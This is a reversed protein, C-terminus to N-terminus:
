TAYGAQRLVTALTPLAAPLRFGSNDRIGHQYPYLGTLINAHSPLTVVNHAHAATFVRGGAALGDLNPTAARRNGAFGLADARLTDITVLLVDPRPAAAAAVPGGALVFAAFLAGVSRSM